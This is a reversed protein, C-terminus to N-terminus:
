GYWKPISVSANWRKSNSRRDKLRVVKSNFCESQLLLNTGDVVKLRVVKSNFCKLLSNAEKSFAAKLRVVKSNFSKLFKIQRNQSRSKVTGSQFQFMRLELNQGSEYFAKLRVVKSNFSEKLFLRNAEKM